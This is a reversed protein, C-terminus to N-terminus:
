TLYMFRDYVPFGFRRTLVLEEVYCGGKGHRIMERRREKSM